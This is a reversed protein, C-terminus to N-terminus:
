RGMPTQQSPWSRVAAPSRAGGRLPFSGPPPTARAGRAALRGYMLFHDSLAPRRARGFGRMPVLHRIKRRKVRSWQAGLSCIEVSFM